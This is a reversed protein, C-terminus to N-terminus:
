AASQVYLRGRGGHPAEEIYLTCSLNLRFDEEGKRGFYQVKNKSVQLHRFQFTVVVSTCLLIFTVKNNRKNNYVKYRKNISVCQPPHQELRSRQLLQAGRGRTHIHHTSPTTPPSLRLVSLRTAQSSPHGQRSSRCHEPARCVEM